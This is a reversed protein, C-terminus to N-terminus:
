TGFILVGFFAGAVFATIVSWGYKEKQLNDITLLIGFIMLILYVILTNARIIEIIEYM